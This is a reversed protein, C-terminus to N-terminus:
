VIAFGSGKRAKTCLFLKNLVLILPGGLFVLGSDNRTPVPASKENVKSIDEEM